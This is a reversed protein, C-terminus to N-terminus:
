NHDYAYEECVTKESIKIADVPCTATCAGCGTCLGTKIEPQSIGGIQHRFSIAEEECSDACSSCAVGHLSICDPTINATLNWPAQGADTISLAAEDCAAVCDQCFTCAGFDFNVTPFGGEGKVIIREPCKDICENCGTCTNIFDNEPLAWPPRTEKIHGRLQGRLFHRRSISHKAQM